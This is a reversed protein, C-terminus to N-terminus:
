LVERIANINNELVTKNVGLETQLNQIDTKAEQISTKNESDLQFLM